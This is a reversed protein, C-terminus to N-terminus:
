AFPPPLVQVIWIFRLFKKSTWAGPRTLSIKWVIKFSSWSEELLLHLRWRILTTVRRCLEAEKSILYPGWKKSVFVIIFSSAHVVISNLWMSPYPLLRLSVHVIVITKRKEELLFSTKKFFFFNTETSLLIFIFSRFYKLTPKNCMFSWGCVRFNNTVVFFSLVM